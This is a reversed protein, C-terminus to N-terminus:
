AAAARAVAAEIEGSPSDINKRYADFTVACVWPNDAWACGPRKGNLSDWLPAFHDHKWRNPDHLEGRHRGPIRIGEAEVDEPSIDQLRQVRVDTVILTLRSAWRPMHMGPKPKTWDGDQPDGDAWRWIPAGVPWDRPPLRRCGYPGSFAERVWLRDGPAYKPQYPVRPLGGDGTFQWGTPGVRDLHLGPAYASAFRRTQTKAGSLLARVMPASFLIPRDTM